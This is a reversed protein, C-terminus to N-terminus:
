VFSFQPPQFFFSRVKPLPMVKVIVECIVGLTGESGAFLQTLEYGTASKRVPQRSRILHGSATCVLLSLSNERTTGCALTSM